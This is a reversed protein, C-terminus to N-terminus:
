IADPKQFVQHVLYDAFILPISASKLLLFASATSSLEGSSGFIM